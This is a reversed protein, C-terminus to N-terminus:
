NRIFERGRAVDYGQMGLDLSVEVAHEREFGPNMHQLQQLSRLVLGAAVLLVFSLAMQTAVLMNRLRSRRYGGIASDGKLAPVLEPRSAQLAPLL